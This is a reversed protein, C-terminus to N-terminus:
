IWIVRSLTYHDPLQLDGHGITAVYSSLGQTVLLTPDRM